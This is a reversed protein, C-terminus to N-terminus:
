CIAAKQFPKRAPTAEATTLVITACSITDSSIQGYDILRDDVAKDIIGQIRGQDADPVVAKM